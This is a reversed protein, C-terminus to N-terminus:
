CFPFNRREEEQRRMTQQTESEFIRHVSACLCLSSPHSLFPHTSYTVSVGPTFACKVAFHICLVLFLSRKIRSFSLSLLISTNLDGATSFLHFLLILLVTLSLIFAHETAYFLLSSREKRHESKERGGGGGSGGGGDAIRQEGDTEHEVERSKLWFHPLFM